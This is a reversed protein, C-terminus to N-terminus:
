QGFCCSPYTWRCCQGDHLYFCGPNADNVPPLWSMLPIGILCAIRIANKTTTNDVADGAGLRSSIEISGIVSLAAVAPLMYTPDAITLDKFWLAGETSLGPVGKEVMKQIGLYLSVAAPFQAFNWLIGFPNIQHQKFVKQLKVAQAHAGPKDGISKLRTMEDKIPDIEPKANHLKVAARQGKISFPLLLFRIAVTSAAITAWWPLGSNVYVVELFQQVLGVPYNSCLGLTAMDGIATIKDLVPAIEPILEKPISDLVPTVNSILEKPINDLVPAIEPISELVPAQTNPVSHHIARRGFTQRIGFISSLGM